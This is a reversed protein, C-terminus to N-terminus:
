RYSLTLISLASLKSTETVESPPSHLESATFLFFTLNVKLVLLVGGHAQLDQCDVYLPYAKAM